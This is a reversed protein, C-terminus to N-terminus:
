ISGAIYRMAADESRGRFKVGTLSVSAINPGLGSVNGGWVTLGAMLCPGAWGFIWSGSGLGSEPMEGRIKLCDSQNILVTLPTSREDDEETKVFGWDWTVGGWFAANGELWRM